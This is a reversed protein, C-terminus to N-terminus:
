EADNSPDLGLGVVNCLNLRDKRRENFWRATFGSADAVFKEPVTTIWGVKYEYLCPHASRCFLCMEGGWMDGSRQLLQSSQQGGFRLNAPVDGERSM